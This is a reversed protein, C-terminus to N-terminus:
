TAHAVQPRRAEGALIERLSWLANEHSSGVLAALCWPSSGCSSFACAPSSGPVIEDGAWPWLAVALHGIAGLVLSGM